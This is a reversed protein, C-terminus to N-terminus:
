LSFKTMNKKQLAGRIIDRIDLMNYMKQIRPILVVVQSHEWDHDGDDHHNPLEPIGKFHYNPTSYTDQHCNDWEYWIHYINIYEKSGHTCQVNSYIRMWIIAELVNRVKKDDHHHNDHSHINEIQIGPELSELFM